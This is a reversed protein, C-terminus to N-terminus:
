CGCDADRPAWFRTSYPIVKLQLFNSEPHGLAIPNQPTIAILLHICRGLLKIDKLYPTCVLIDM